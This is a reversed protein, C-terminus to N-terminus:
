KPVVLTLFYDVDRTGTITLIPMIEAEAARANEARISQAVMGDSMIVIYHLLTKNLSAAYIDMNEEEQTKVRVLLNRNAWNHQYTCELSPWQVYIVNDLSSNVVGRKGRFNLANYIVQMGAELNRGNELRVYGPYIGSELQYCDLLTKIKIVSNGASSSREITVTKNDYDIDKIKGSKSPEKHLVKTVKNSEIYQLFEKLKLINSM